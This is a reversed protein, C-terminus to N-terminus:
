VVKTHWYDLQRNVGEIEIPTELLDTSKSIGSGRKANPEVRCSSPQITLVTIPTSQVVYAEIVSM